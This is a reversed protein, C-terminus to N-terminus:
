SSSSSGNTNNHDLDLNAHGSENNCYHSESNEEEDNNICSNNINYGGNEPSGGIGGHHRINNSNSKDEETINATAAAPNTITITSSIDRRGVTNKNNHMWVKLVGRAVGIENCFNQVMNDDCKQMKWGMKEAFSHMKEKQEQSFKTRFRKRGSLNEAAAKTERPTVPTAVQHHNPVQQDDHAATSLALLMQTPPYSLTPPQQPPPSPSSSSRRHQRFELFHPAATTTIFPSHEVERRHFNRHCGCAACNLSTPDAATATPCPMFEGCGDLAHGGINAAHNKLCERYAVATQPPPQRHHRHHYKSSGNTFSFSRIPQTHPPTDNDTDPTTTPTSINTLGM